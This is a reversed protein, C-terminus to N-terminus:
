ADSVSRKLRWWFWRQWGVVRVVERETLDEGRRIKDIMAKPIYVM